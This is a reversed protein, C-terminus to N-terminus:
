SSQVILPLTVRFFDSNSEIQISQHAALAYRKQINELGTGTGPPINKKPTRNNEVVIRNHEIAIRIILRRDASIANHKEANEVLMQLAFPPIFNKEAELPIDVQLVIRNDYRQNLLFVYDKVLALEISLPVLAEQNVQIVYRYYNSLKQVFNKATHPSEDILAILTNLSNFLFHPGVQNKLTEFHSRLTEQKLREKDILTDRYLRFIAIGETFTNILLSILVALATNSILQERTVDAGALGFFFLTFPITAAVAIIFIAPIEVLIRRVRHTEWPLYQNLVFFMLRFLVYLLISISVSFLLNRILISQLSDIQNVLAYYVAIIIGLGVMLMLDSLISLPGSSIIGRIPDKREEM